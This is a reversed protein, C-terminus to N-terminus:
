GFIIGAVLFRTQPVYQNVSKVPSMEEAAVLAAQDLVEAGSSRVVRVDTLVGDPHLNFGILTTGRLRFDVAMKPYRLHAALAQGLLKILPKDVKKDGVLQLQQHIAVQKAQMVPTDQVLRASIHRQMGEDAIEISQEHPQTVGQTPHNAVAFKESVYSPIYIAPKKENSFWAQWYVIAPLLILSHLFLSFYFSTRERRRYARSVLCCRGSASAVLRLLSNM